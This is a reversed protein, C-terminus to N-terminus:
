RPATHTTSSIISERRKRKPDARLFERGTRSEDRLKVLKVTTIVVGVFMFVALMHYKAQNNFSNTTVIAYPLLRTIVISSSTFRSIQTTAIEKSSRRARAKIQVFFAESCGHYREHDHIYDQQKVTMTKLYITVSAVNPFKVIQSNPSIEDQPASINKDTVSPKAEEWARHKGSFVREDHVEQQM